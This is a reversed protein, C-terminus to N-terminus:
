VASGSMASVAHSLRQLDDAALVWSRRSGPSRRTSLRRAGTAAAEPGADGRAILAVSDGRRTFERVCARGVGGSAGTVAIVKSM